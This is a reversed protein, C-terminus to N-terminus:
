YWSGALRLTLNSLREGDYLGVALGAESSLAFIGRRFLDVGAGYRVALGSLQRDEGGGTSRFGAVGVGTAVWFADRVYYHGGLTITTQARSTGEDADPNQHVAVEADLFWLLRKTATTGLRLDLSGGAGAFREDGTFGFLVSPGLGVGLAFGSRRHRAESPPPGGFVPGAAPNVAAPPETAPASPEAPEPEAPEAAATAGAAALATAVSVLRIRRSV